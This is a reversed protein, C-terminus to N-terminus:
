YDTKVNTYIPFDDSEDAIPPTGELMSCVDIQAFRGGTKPRGELHPPWAAAGGRGRRGRFEEM